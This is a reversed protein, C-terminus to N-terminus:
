TVSLKSITAEEPHTQPALPGVKMLQMVRAIAARGTPYRVSPSVNEADHAHVTWGDGDEVIAYLQKGAWSDRNEAAIEAIDSM